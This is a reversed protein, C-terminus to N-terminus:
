KNLHITSIGGDLNIVQGTMWSAKDSLLFIALSAVDEPKGIRKLPHRNNNAELKADTNLLSAALPTNTLSLEICNFRIEPAYEAALAKTLGEIAGKSSSVLSHFIFGKQVAVSSFLVVSAGNSKKLKPLLAQILRVAGLFQVQYDQIFEDPKIRHFPKLNITGPCYVIGDIVEPLEPFNYDQSNVDLHFYMENQKIFEDDSSNYTAWVNSQPKSKLKNVIALGIGSSGGIIIYNKM